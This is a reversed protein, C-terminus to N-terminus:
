KLPPRIPLTLPPDHRRPRPHIVLRPRDVSPSSVPASTHIEQECRITMRSTALHATAVIVLVSVCSM